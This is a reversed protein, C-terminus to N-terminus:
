SLKVHLWLIQLKLNQVLLQPEHTIYYEPRVSVFRSCYSVLTNELIDFEGKLNLEFM